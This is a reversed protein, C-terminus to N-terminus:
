DAVSGRKSPLLLYRLGSPPTPPPTPLRVLRAARGPRHTTGAARQRRCRQDASAPSGAVSTSRRYPPVAVRYLGAMALPSLLHCHLYKLEPLFVIQALPAPNPACFFYRATGIQRAASRGM